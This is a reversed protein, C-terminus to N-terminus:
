YRFILYDRMGTGTQGMIVCSNNLPLPVSTTLQRNWRDKLQEFYRLIRKSLSFVMSTGHALRPRFNYRFRQTNIKISNGGIGQIKMNCNDKIINRKLSTERVLSVQAGTYRGPDRNMVLPTGSILLGLEIGQPHGTVNGELAVGRPRFFSTPHNRERHLSGVASCWPRGELADTPTGSRRHTGRSRQDRPIPEIIDHLIQDIG